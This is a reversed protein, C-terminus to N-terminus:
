AVAEDPFNLFAFEGYAVRAAADYARAADEPTSYTGLHRPNWNAGIRATWKGKTPARSVGKFGTTSTCRVPRNAANQSGTADRLNERRNDLTNRNAHDTLAYGGIFKHLYITRDGGIAPVRTLAYPGTNRRGDDRIVELVTWRHRIARGYDEDDVLAVRGAAKAGCLPVTM